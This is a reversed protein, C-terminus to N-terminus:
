KFIVTIVCMFTTSAVVLVNLAVESYGFVPFPLSYNALWMDPGVFHPFSPSLHIFSPLPLFFSSFLGYYYSLFYIISLLQLGETPGNIIGLYLSGTHYRSPFHLFQYKTCKLLFFFSFYEEWTALWFTTAGTLLMLLSM